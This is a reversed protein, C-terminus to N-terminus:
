PDHTGGITIVTPESRRSPQKFEAADGVDRKRHIWLEMCCMNIILGLWLGMGFGMRIAVITNMMTDGQNSVWTRTERMCLPFHTQYEYIDDDLEYLVQACDVVAWKEGFRALLAGLPVTIRSWLISTGCAYNRLMWSRHEEVRGQKICKLGLGATGIFVFFITWVAAISAMEGGFAYPGMLLGSISLIACSLMYVRGAWRHYGLAVKRVKPVFQVLGLLIWLIVSAVHVILRDLHQKHAYYEGPPLRKEAKDPHVLALSSFAFLSMVVAVVTWFALSQREEFGLTLRFKTLWGEKDNEAGSHAGVTETM